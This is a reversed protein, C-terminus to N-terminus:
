EKSSLLELVEKFEKTLTSEIEAVKARLEKIELTIELKETDVIGAPLAAQQQEKALKFAAQAMEKPMDGLQITEEEEQAPIPTIHTNPSDDRGYWRSRRNTATNFADLSDRLYEALIFDPTHSANEQSTSNILEQLKRQFSTM